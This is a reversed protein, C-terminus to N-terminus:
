AEEHSLSLASSHLYAEAGRAPKPGSPATDTASTNNELLRLCPPKTRHTLIM